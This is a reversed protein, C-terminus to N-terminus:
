FILWLSLERELRFSSDLKSKLFSKIDWLGSGYSAKSPSSSFISIKSSNSVSRDPRIVTWSKSYIPLDNPNELYPLLYRVNGIKNIM